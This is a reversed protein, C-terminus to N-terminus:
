KEQGEQAHSNKEDIQSIEATGIHEIHIKLACLLSYCFGRNEYYSLLYQFPVSPDNSYHIRAGIDNHM